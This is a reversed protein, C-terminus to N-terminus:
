RERRESYPLAGPCELGPMFPDWESAMGELGKGGEAMAQGISSSYNPERAGKCETFDCFEGNGPVVSGNVFRLLSQCPLTVPLAGTSDPLQSFVVQPAEQGLLPLPIGLAWPNERAGM